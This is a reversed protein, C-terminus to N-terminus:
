MMRTFYFKSTLTILIFEIKTKQPKKGGDNRVTMISIAANSDGGVAMIATCYHVIRM